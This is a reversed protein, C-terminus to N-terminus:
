TESATARPQQVDLTTLDVAVFKGHYTGVFLRGGDDSLAPGLEAAVSRGLNLKAVVRGVQETSYVLIWVLNSVNFM